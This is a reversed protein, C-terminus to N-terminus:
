GAHTYGRLRDIELRKDPSRMIAEGILAGDAGMDRLQAVDEPTKVGSEAVFVIETPVLGRLRRSLGMDVEFTKLNRNNVGIVRAGASLAMEVEGEDHTEVLVSMGLGHAIAMYEALVPGDLMSCILLVADAGLAKAEEGGEAGAPEAAM